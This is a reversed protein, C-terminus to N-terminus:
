PRPRTTRTPPFSGLTELNTEVISNGFARGRSTYFYPLRLSLPRSEREGHVAPSERQLLYTHVLNYGLSGLRPGALYAFMSLDSALALVVFRWLPGGLALYVRVALALAALGEIRLFGRSRVYVFVTEVGTYL